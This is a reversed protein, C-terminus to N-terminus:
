NKAAPFTNAIGYVMHVQQKSEDEVTFGSAILQMPTGTAQQLCHCIRTIGRQLHEDVVQQREAAAKRSDQGAQDTQHPMGHYSGPGGYGTGKAWGGNSSSSGM